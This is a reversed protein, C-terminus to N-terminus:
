ISSPCSWKERLKFVTLTKTEPFQCMNATWYIDTSHIFLDSHRNQSKQGKCSHTEALSGITSDLFCDIKELWPELLHLLCWKYPFLYFLFFPLVSSLSSLLFSFFPFFSPLFSPLFTPLEWTVILALTLLFLYIFLLLYPLLLSLPSYLILFATPCGFQLTSSSSLLAPM